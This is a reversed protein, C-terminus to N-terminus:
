KMSVGGNENGRWKRALNRWKMNIKRQSIIICKKRMAAVMIIKAM